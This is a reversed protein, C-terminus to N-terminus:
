YGCHVRVRLRYNEFNRMGYARRTIMEMKNHLGETISNTKTFRWMRVIEESWSELTYGLTSMANIPSAKLQRIAELFKPILEICQRKTRHKILLLESLQQKFSYVAELGPQSALYHSLKLPQDDRLNWSHRRMLSLLGRDMRGASDFQKWAVMFHHNILRIVHFRDAVIKANPFFERIIGRYTESLDIVVVEVKDRGKLSMLYSRLSKKSRGLKVDFVKNKKFDVFTTAFGKKRTFFHEDIGLIRPCAAGKTKHHELRIFDQYWREVTAQGVHMTAALTKQTIGHHHQRSVQKRFPESARKRPLVGPLRQRFYIKCVKCYFKFAEVLLETLKEGFSVHRIRRLFRDKKRLQTNRCKICHQKASCRAHIVLRPGDEISLIAFDPLGIILQDYPM